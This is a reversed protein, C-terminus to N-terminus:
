AEKLVRKLVNLRRNYETKFESDWNPKLEAWIKQREIARQILPKNKEDIEGDDVLQGFGTAITCIDVTFIFYHDDFNEDSIQSKILKRDLIEDNFDVISLEGLSEIAWKLYEYTPINPNLKKWERFEALALDGEDSGFSAFEDISNWFFDEPILEIAKKHAHEKDIGYVEEKIKNVKEKSISTKCSFIVSAVIFLVLTKM